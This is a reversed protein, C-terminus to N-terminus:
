LRCSCAPCNRPVYRIPFSFRSWGCMGCRVDTLKLARRSLNLLRECIWEIARIARPLTEEQRWVKGQAAITYMGESNETLALILREPHRKGM